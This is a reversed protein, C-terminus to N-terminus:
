LKKLDDLLQELNKRIDQCIQNGIAINLSEIELNSPKWHNPKLSKLWDIEEKVLKEVEKSENSIADALYYQMSDIVRELMKEDEESWKTPEQEIKRLEKKEGDWEWGAEKMKAFLLDRQAQSAPTADTPICIANDMVINDSQYNLNCGVHCERDNKYIWLLGCCSSFLVDGNKADQITWLHYNDNLHYIATEAVEGYENVLKVYENVIDTIKWAAYKCSSNRAVWDGVEFKPEQKPAFDMQQIHANEYDFLKKEGEVAEANVVVKWDDEDEFFISVDNTAYMECLEDISIIKRRDTTDTICQVIDGVNFKHIIKPKQEGRKELWAAWEILNNDKLHEIIAGRIREDESEKLEPFVRTMVNFPQARQENNIEKARELAEKYKQEYNEM